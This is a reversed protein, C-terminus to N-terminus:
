LEIPKITQYPKQDWTYQLIIKLNKLYYKTLLLDFISKYQHIHTDSVHM